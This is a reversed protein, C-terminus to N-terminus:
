QFSCCLHSYEEMVQLRTITITHVSYVSVTFFFWCRTFRHSSLPNPLIDLMVPAVHLPCFCAPYLLGAHWDCLYQLLSSVHLALSLSSPLACVLSLCLSLLFPQIELSVIIWISFFCRSRPLPPWSLSLDRECVSLHLSSSSTPFSLSLSFDDCM